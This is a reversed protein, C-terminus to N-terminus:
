ISNKCHRPHRSDYHLYKQRDTPKRYLQTALKSDNILVRTDLFTIESRSYSDTFCISPHAFNFARIFELLEEESHSWILFIDDIYRKYFLPKLSRSALFNSELNGMFINAYNPAMKTGMATGSTQLFFSGNFEFSNLELVLRSLTAVVHKDPLDDSRYTDYANM